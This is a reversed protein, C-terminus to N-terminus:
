EGKDENQRNARAKKRAKAEAKAKAEAAVEATAAFVFETLREESVKGRLTNLLLALKLSFEIVQRQTMNMSDRLCVFMKWSTNSIHTDLRKMKPGNPDKTIRYIRDAQRSPKLGM